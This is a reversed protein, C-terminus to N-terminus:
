CVLINYGWCHHQTTPTDDDYDHSWNPDAASQFSSVLHDSSSMQSKFTLYSELNNCSLATLLLM